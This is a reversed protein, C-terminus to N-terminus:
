CGWKVKAPNPEDEVALLQLAATMDACVEEAIKHYMEATENLGVRDYAIAAAGYFYLGISHSLTHVVASGQGCARAAAQAAPHDELERAAAHCENLIINKVVPFKVKGDLYDRAVNLANRPRADNPCHKEFIPLIHAQAYDMCWTCITAKSQTDILRMLAITSPANIDGYMKRLKKTM